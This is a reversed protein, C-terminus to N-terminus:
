PKEVKGIAKWGLDWAIRAAGREIPHGDLAKAEESACEDGILALCVLLAGLLDPSAERMREERQEQELMAMKVRAM